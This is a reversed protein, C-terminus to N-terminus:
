KHLRVFEGSPGWRDVIEWGNKANPASPYCRVAWADHEQVSSYTWVPDGNPAQTGDVPSSSFHSGRYDGRQVDAPFKKWVNDRVFEIATHTLTDVAPVLGNRGHQTHVTGGPTWLHAVGFHWAAEQPTEPKNKVGAGSFYPEAIKAPEDDIVPRGIQGQWWQCDRAKRHWQSDRSTHMTAFDLVPPLSPNSDEPYYGYASLVGRRNVNRFDRIPDPKLGHTPENVLETVINWHFSAVDYFENAYAQLLSSPEGPAVCFNVRIGYDSLLSLFQDLKVFNFNSYDYRGGLEVWPLPGFIRVINIGMKRFWKLDPTIDEGDCFRLFGLFWSYGRWQFLRNQEDFMQDGVVHLRGEEPPFLYNESGGEELLIFGTHLNSM